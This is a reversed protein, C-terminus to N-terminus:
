VENTSNSSSTDESNSKGPKEPKEKKDAKDTEDEKSNSNERNKFDPKGNFDSPLNSTDFDFNEPRMDKFNKASNNKLIIFVGATIIAGILMGLILFKIKDKM